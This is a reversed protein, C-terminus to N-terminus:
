AASATVSCCKAFAGCPPPNRGPDM